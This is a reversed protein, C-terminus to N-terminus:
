SGLRELLEEMGARNHMQIVAAAADLDGRRLADLLAQFERNMARLRGTSYGYRLRLANVVYWTDQFLRTAEQNDAIDFLATHFRSTADLVVKPDGHEVARQHGECLGKLHDLKEFTMRAICRKLIMIELTTRVEFTDEIFKRDVSRVTAGRNPAITVIGEGELKRLAERVPMASLGFRQTVDAVKIRAGPEYQGLIIANRIITTAHDVSTTNADDDAVPTPSAPGNLTAANQRRAAM